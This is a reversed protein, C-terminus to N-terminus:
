YVLLLGILSVKRAVRPRLPLRVVAAVLVSNLLRASVVSLLVDVDHIHVSGVVALLGVRLLLLLDLEVEQAELRVLPDAASVPYPDM